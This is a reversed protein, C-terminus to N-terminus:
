RRGTFSCRITFDRVCCYRCFIASICIAQFESVEIAISQEYQICFVSYQFKIQCTVYGVYMCVIFVDLWLFALM